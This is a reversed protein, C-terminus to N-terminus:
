KDYVQGCFGGSSSESSGLAIINPSNYPNTSSTFTDFIFLSMMLFLVALIIHLRLLKM